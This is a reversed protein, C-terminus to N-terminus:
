KLGASQMWRKLEAATKFRYSNATGDARTIVLTYGTSTLYVNYNM